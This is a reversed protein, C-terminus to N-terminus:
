PDHDILNHVMGGTILVTLLVHFQVVRPFAIGAQATPREGVPEGIGKWRTCTKGAAVEQHNRVFRCVDSVLIAQLPDEAREVWSRLEPLLALARTNYEHKLQKYPDPNGSIERILRHAKRAIEPPSVDLRLEMLLGMVGNLIERQRATESTAVRSAELAQNLMCPLCELHTKM